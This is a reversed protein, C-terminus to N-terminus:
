RARAKASTSCVSRAASWSNSKLETDTELKLPTKTPVAGGIVTRDLDVYVMHIAGPQFLDTLLFTERLEETTMRPYRIKDAMELIKM